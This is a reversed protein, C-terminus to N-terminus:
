DTQVRVPMVLHLFDSQGPSRFVGPSIQSGFEVQIEKGAVALFDLLYRYNFSIDFIGKTDGTAKIDIESENQGLQAATASVSLKEGNVKLKVINANDRAFISALRVAKALEESNMDIKLSSTSPIIKEYDPYNGAILRSIIKIDGLDFSIQNETKSVFLKLSGKGTLVRALEALTKAPVIIPALDEKKSPVAKTLNVVSLRFGDTAVLALGKEQPEIFLGTLAARSEDLAACFLTQNLATVFDLIPIEWYLETSPSFPLTPYEKASVGNVRAHFSGSTIDLSGDVVELTIKEASFSSIIETFTRGPVTFDGATTIKAGLDVAISTELNSATLTLKGDKAVLLINGLIPIQPKTVIVRSVISLAHNLNEQLVDLTM